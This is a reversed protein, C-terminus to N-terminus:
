LEVINVEDVFDKRLPYGVFDDETLLRRLDPHHNFTIGFLEFIEREHLEATRWLDCVTDVKANDRDTLKVKLVLVHKHITSELHYVVMLHTKWDVGSECFLYDFATDNSDKLNLAFDHLNEPPVVVTLYQKGEEFEINPLISQIKVKLEENSM